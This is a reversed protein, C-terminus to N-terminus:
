AGEYKDLDATFVVTVGYRTCVVEREVETNLHLDDGRLGQWMALYRLTGYKRKTKISSELGGKWPLPVLEGARAAIALEPQESAVERGREWCATLGDDDGLWLEKVSLGQRIPSGISRRVILGRKADAVQEFWYQEGIIHLPAGNDRYEVAKLIKTGHTSHLWDRSGIDGIVLYDLKKTVQNTAVGGRSQVQSYCWDRNGSNFKGTFCFVRGSVEVVPAPACLPLSTSNSAFGQEIADNGGIANQLLAMIEAEEAADLHGDELAAAIRPYLAKAPWQDMAPRNIEMWKLLFEAERQCVIDDALIGKILGILEDVQRAQVAGSRYGRQQPQGDINLHNSLKSSVEAAWSM